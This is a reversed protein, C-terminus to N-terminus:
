AHVAVHTHIICMYMPHICVKMHVYMRLIEYVVPLINCSAHIDPIYKYWPPQRYRDLLIKGNMTAPQCVCVSAYVCVGVYVYLCVCLVCLCLCVFVCM